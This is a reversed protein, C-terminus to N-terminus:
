LHTGVPLGADRFILLPERAKQQTLIYRVLYIALSPPNSRRNKRNEASSSKKKRTSPRRQYPYSKDFYGTLREFQNEADRKAILEETIGEPEEAM